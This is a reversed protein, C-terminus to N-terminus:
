EINSHSSLPEIITLNDETERISYEMHTVHDGHRFSNKMLNYFVKDILIDAFIEARNVAVNIEIGPPNLQRIASSIVDALVQWKPAQAGIDHYTRTFEIQWQIAEAAQEEKQIYGLFKPDTM